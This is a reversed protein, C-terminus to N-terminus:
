GVFDRPALRANPGVVLVLGTACPAAPRTASRAFAVATLLPIAASRSIAVRENVGARVHTTVSSAACTAVGAGIVTVRGEMMTFRSTRRDTHNAGPSLSITFLDIVRAPIAM